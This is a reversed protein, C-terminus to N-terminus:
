QYLRPLTERFLGDVANTQEEFANDVSPGLTQELWPLQAFMANIVHDSGHTAQQVFTRSVFPWWALRKGYLVRNLSGITEAEAELHYLEEQRGPADLIELLRLLLQRVRQSDRLMDPLAGGLEAILRERHHSNWQSIHDVFQVLAHYVWQENANHAVAVDELHKLSLELSQDDMSTTLTEVLQNMWDHDPPFGQLRSRSLGARLERLQTAEPQSHVATALGADLLSRNRVWPIYSLISPLLARAISPSDHVFEDVFRALIKAQRDDPLWANVVDLVRALQYARSEHTPNGLYAGILESFKKQPNSEWTRRAVAAALDDQAVRMAIHHLANARIYPLGISAAETEAEELNTTVLAQVLNETAWSTPQLLVEALDDDSGAAVVDTRLGRVIARLQDLIEDALDPVFDRLDLFLRRCLDAQEDKQGDYEIVLRWIQRYWQEAMNPDISRIGRCVSLRDGMSVISIGDQPSTAVESSEVWKWASQLIEV